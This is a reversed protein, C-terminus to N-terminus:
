AGNGASFSTITIRFPTGNASGEAYLPIGTQSFRFLMTPTKVATVTNGDTRETKIETVDNGQASFVSSILRPLFSTRDNTEVETEGHKLVTNEGSVSFVFGSLTDPSTFTIRTEAADREYLCASANGNIEVSLSATFNGSFVSFPDSPGTKGHCGPLSFFLLLVASLYLCFARTKKM